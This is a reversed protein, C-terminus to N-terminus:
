FGTARRYVEKGRVYTSLVPASDSYLLRRVVNEPQSLETISNFISTSDIIVFDADMGKGFCGIKNEAHLVKAGGVTATYLAESPTILDSETDCYLKYMKSQELSEKAEHLISLSTGGAVDSGYGITIGKKLYTDFPMIGSSLYRNSTPCHAVKCNKQVLVDLERDSLYISHALITRDSLLGHSDYVDTYDILSPYLSQIFTLEDRNESLHTQLLLNEADAIKASKTLLDSSCSGAFRPTICYNLRGKDHGHWEKALSLSLRINSEASKSLAPPTHIDMMTMGMWVRIGVESAAKFALQTASYFPSSYVAMSTTGRSLANEFFSKASRYAFEEDIFRAELPFITEELWDLLTGTGLGIADYQPLHAHTDILGPLIISPRVDLITADQFLGHADSFRGCFSITGDREVVLGGDPFYQGGDPSLPNLITARYIKPAFINM